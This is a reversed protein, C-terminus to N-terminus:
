EYIHKIETIFGFDDTVSISNRDITENIDSTPKGEATLGPQVTVTSDINGSASDRVNVKAFTIVNGKGAAGGRIPGYIYAKMVFNLTWIIARREEFNGEYQDDLSVDTLVVPVDVKVDMEPILNVTPTFEPTFYPLIQEVIRTGDEANKVMISLTFGIDYPVPTYQKLLTKGTVGAESKSKYATTALKRQPAYTFSTIEFSMRPLVISVPKNLSPDGELRALTKEHPGYSIPVKIGQLPSNVNGDRSIYIDNFLTGFVAVYKRIHAFYFDNGLM